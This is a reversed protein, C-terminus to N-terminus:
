FTLSLCPHSRHTTFPRRQGSPRAYARPRSVKVRQGFTKPVAPKIRSAPNERQVAGRRACARVLGTM